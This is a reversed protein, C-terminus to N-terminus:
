PRIDKIEVIWDHDLTFQGGVYPKLLYGWNINKGAPCEWYKGEFLFKYKGDERVIRCYYQRGPQITDLVAWLNPDEMPSVGNCYCYGGVVLLTDSLCQYVLRASSQNHHNGDSFGRIKNWGPHEPEDYFWSSDTRFRFEMEDVGAILDM